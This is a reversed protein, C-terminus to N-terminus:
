PILNPSADIREADMLEVVRELANTIQLQENQTLSAFRQTFNDQLLSPAKNAITRGAETIEVKVKRRDTDSRIRQLLKKHELRDVIGIVTSASLNITRALDSMVMDHDEALASLCLLQPTTLGFESNLKRSYIDVSRIIRRLSLLVRKDFCSELIPM